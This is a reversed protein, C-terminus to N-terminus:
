KPHTSTILHRDPTFRVANQFANVPHITLRM